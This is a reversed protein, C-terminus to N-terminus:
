LYLVSRPMSNHPLPLTNIVGLGLPLSGHGDYWSCCWCTTWVSGCVGASRLVAWGSALDSLNVGSSRIFPAFLLVGHIRWRVPKNSLVMKVYLHTPNNKFLLGEREWHVWLPTASNTFLPREREWHVECSIWRWARTQGRKWQLFGRTRRRNNNRCLEEVENWLTRPHEM